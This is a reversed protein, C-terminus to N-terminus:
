TPKTKLPVWQVFGKGSLSLALDQDLQNGLIKTLQSVRKPFVLMDKWFM